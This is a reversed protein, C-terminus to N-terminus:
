YAALQPPSSGSAPIPRLLRHGSAVDNTLNWAIWSDRIANMNGYRSRDSVANHGTIEQLLLFLMGGDKQYIEMIPQIAATRFSVIQAFAPHERMRRHSSHYRIADQWERVLSYVAFRVSNVDAEEHHSASLAGVEAAGVNSTSLLVAALYLM